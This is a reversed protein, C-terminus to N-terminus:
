AGAAAVMPGPAAGEGDASPPLGRSYRVFRAFLLLAAMSLGAILGMWVGRAGLHHWFGLYIGLPFGVVWYAFATILMPVRTDKLGRLAGASAVQIGDSFQFIGALVLLQAALAIVRPNDTYIAAIAHPFGLM